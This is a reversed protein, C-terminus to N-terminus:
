LSKEENPKSENKEIDEDEIIRSESLVDLDNHLVLEVFKRVEHIYKEPNYFYSDFHCRGNSIWLRKPGQVNDYVNKVAEVSVKDDNKCHIFFCPVTIKKALEVPSMPEALLKVHRTDWKIKIRLFAQLMSQVYPHYKYQEIIAPMGIEYGFFNYKAKELATKIVNDCTDYPCDLIMGAFLPERAQAGIAAVAGMSFGWVFIPKNRTREDTKLFEGAALVDLVEDHGLTSHQGDAEEGHGRFDFTLFNFRGWPFLKRFCAIDYKNCLLGHCLVITAEADDFWVLVGPRELRETSGEKVLPKLIVRDTHAQALKDEKKQLDKKWDPYESFVTGMACLVGLIPLLSTRNM